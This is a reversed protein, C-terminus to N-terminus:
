KDLTRIGDTNYKQQSIRIAELMADNQKTNKDNPRKTTLAIIENIKMDIIQLSVNKSVFEHKLSYELIIKFGDYLLEDTLPQKASIVAELYTRISKIKLGDKDNFKPKVHFNFEYWDFWIKVMETFILDKEKIENKKSEKGKREKIANPKSQPPKANADNNWRKFASERAKISKADRDELRRQVSRSGFINKEIVFLDFDHIISEIIKEKTKLDYAMVDCELPLANANNYLDEIIAWYIGYGLVGHKSLLKKIKSDNRANYDHTFYFANEKAM